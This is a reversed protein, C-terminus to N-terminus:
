AFLETLCTPWIMSRCRMYVLLFCAGLLLCRVKADYDLGMIVEPARYSRSQVYSGKYDGEYCASGFDILKVEATSYSKILINEPKVDCHILNLSHVYQLSTLLQKTIYSLRPLTFYPKQGPSSCVFTSFEYLDLKLLRSLPTLPDSPSFSFSFSASPPRSPQQCGKM